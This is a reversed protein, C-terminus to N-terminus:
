GGSTALGIIKAGTFDVTAGKFDASGKVALDNGSIKGAATIDGATSLNGTASDIAFVSAITFNNELLVPASIKVATGKLSTNSNVSLNDLVLSKASQIGAQAPIVSPAPAAPASPASPTPPTSSTSPQAPNTTPNDGGGANTALSSNASLSHKGTEKLYGSILRGTFIFLMIALFLSIKLLPRVKKRRQYKKM